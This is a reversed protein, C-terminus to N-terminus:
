SPGLVVRSSRRSDRQAAHHRLRTVSMRCRVCWEAHRHFGPEDKEGAAVRPISSAWRECWSGSEIQEVAARIRRNAALCLKKARAESVGLEAAARKYGAAPAGRKKSDRGLVAALAVQERWPLSHMIEVATALKEQVIAHEVPDLGAAAILRLLPESEALVVQTARVSRGRYDRTRLMNLMAIAIYSPVASGVLERDPHELWTLWFESYLDKAEDSLDHRKRYGLRSASWIFRRCAPERYRAFDVEPDLRGSAGGTTLRVRERVPGAEWGRDEDDEGETRSAEPTLGTTIM